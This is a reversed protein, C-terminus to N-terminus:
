MPDAFSKFNRCSFLVDDKKAGHRSEVSGSLEINKFITVRNARNKRM